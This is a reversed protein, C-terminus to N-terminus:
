RQSHLSPKSGLEVAVSHMPLSRRSLMNWRAPPPSDTVLLSGKGCVVPLAVTVRLDQLGHALLRGGAPDAHGFRLAAAVDASAPPRLALEARQGAGDLELLHARQSRAVGGVAPTLSASPELLARVMHHQRHSEFRWVDVLALHQWVQAAVALADVGDAGVAAVAVHAVLGVEGGGGADTRGRGSRRRAGSFGPRGGTGRVQGDM